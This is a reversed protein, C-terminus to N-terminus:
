RHGGEFLPTFADYQVVVNISTAQCATHVGPVNETGQIAVLKIARGEVFPVDIPGSDTVGGGLPGFQGNVPQSDFTVTHEKFGDTLQVAPNQDCIVAENGAPTQNRQFLSVQEILIRHVRIDTSPVFRSVEGDGKDTLVASNNSYLAIDPLFSSWVHSSSRLRPLNEHGHTLFSVTAVGFILM